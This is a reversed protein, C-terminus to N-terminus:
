DTKEAGSFDDFENMFSMSKTTRSHDVLGSCSLKYMSKGLASIFHAPPNADTTISDWSAVLLIINPYTQHRSEHSSSSSDIPGTGPFCRDKYIRILTSNSACDSYSTDAGGPIDDFALTVTVGTDRNYVPVKV